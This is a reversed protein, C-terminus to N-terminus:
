VAHLVPASWRGDLHSRKDPLGCAAIPLAHFWDSSLILGILILIIVFKSLRAKLSCFSSFGARLQYIHLRHMRRASYKDRTYTM